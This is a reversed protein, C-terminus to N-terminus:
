TSIRRMSFLNALGALSPVCARNGTGGMGEHHMTIHGVEAMEYKRKLLFCIKFESLFLWALIGQLSQQRM